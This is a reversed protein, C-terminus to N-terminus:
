AKILFQKATNSGVSTKQLAPKRSKSLTTPNQPHWTYKFLSTNHPSTMGSYAPMAQMIILPRIPVNPHENHHPIYTTQISFHPSPQSSSLFLITSTNQKCSTLHLLCPQLINPISHLNSNHNDVFTSPSIPTPTAISSSDSFTSSTPFHHLVSHNCNHQNTSASRYTCDM